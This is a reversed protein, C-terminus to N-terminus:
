STFIIYNSLYLAPLDPSAKPKRTKTTSKNTNITNDYEEEINLETEELIDEDLIEEDLEEDGEEEEINM